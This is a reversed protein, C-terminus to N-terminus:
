QPRKKEGDRVSERVRMLACALREPGGIYFGAQSFLVVELVAPRYRRV